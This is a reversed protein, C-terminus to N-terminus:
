LRKYMILTDVYGQKPHLFADPVRGIVTYGMRQWLGVATENTTVVSNFQMAQFGLERARIQSHECLMRAIGRGRALPAVMYGCNCVHSGPGMANPKLYYTGLVAAEDVCAYSASAAVCWTQYAQELGMDPDFAYTERAQIIARFVGWFSEFEARGVPKIQM